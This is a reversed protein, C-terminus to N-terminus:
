VQLAYYYCETKSHYISMWDEFFDSCVNQVSLIYTECHDSLCISPFLPLSARLGISGSQAPMGSLLAARHQSSRQNKHYKWVGNLKYREEM